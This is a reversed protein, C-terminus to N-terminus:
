ADAEYTLVYTTHDPCAIGPDAAAFHGSLGAERAALEFHCLAIGLDVQQIDLVDGKSIGRSRCEYFHVRQGDTVVRWPQKNVASPALRVMELPDAWNGATEPTLPAAFDGAFFLREFPLRTDAKVAKRMARERISRKAAYGVPSAASMVEDAQLAVAAEFAPRDLTGAIWVTGLGLATASLLLHEFSYGYAAAALPQRKVKGALYTRAGVIVPSSLKDAEADLWQFRVPITLLRPAEAMARELAARHAPSLDRGDFTRVSKRARIVDTWRKNEAM